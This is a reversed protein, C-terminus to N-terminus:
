TWLLKLTSSAHGDQDDFIFTHTYEIIGTGVNGTNHSTYEYKVKPFNEKLWLFIKDRYKNGAIWMDDQSFYVIQKIDIKM